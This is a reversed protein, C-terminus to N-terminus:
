LKVFLGSHSKGNKLVEVKIFYTGQSLTNIEVQHPTGKLSIEEEQIVKGFLDYIKLSAKGSLSEPFEIILNGKRVPNPFLRLQESSLSASVASTNCIAPIIGHMDFRFDFVQLSPPDIQDIITKSSDIVYFTPFGSINYLTVIESGGGELGSISPYEIQYENDYAIVEADSDGWDIAM